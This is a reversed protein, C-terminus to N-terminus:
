PQPEPNTQPVAACALKAAKRENETGLRKLRQLAADIRHRPLELLQREHALLLRQLAEREDTELTWGAGAQGREFVAILANQAGDHLECPLEGPVMLYWAHATMHALKHAMTEAGSGRALADFALHYELLIPRVSAVPLPLLQERSLVKRPTKM